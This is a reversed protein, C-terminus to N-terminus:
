VFRNKNKNYNYSIEQASLAKSYLGYYYLKGTMYSSVYRGIYNLPISVPTSFFGSESAINLLVGNRYIYLKNNNRVCVVHEIDGVTYPVFQTTLQMLGGTTQVFFLIYRGSGTYLMRIYAGPNNNGVVYIDAPSGLKTWVEISFNLSSNDTSSFPWTYTSFQNTGNFSFGTDDLTPSNFLAANSRRNSLDFWTGLNAPDVSGPHISIYLRELNDRVISDAFFDSYAIQNDHLQIGQESIDGISIM